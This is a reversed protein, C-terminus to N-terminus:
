RIFVLRFGAAANLSEGGDMENKDERGARTKKGAPGPNNQKIGRLRMLERQAVPLQRSHPPELASLLEKM